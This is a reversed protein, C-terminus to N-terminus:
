TYSALSFGFVFLSDPSLINTKISYQLVNLAHRTYAYSLVQEM